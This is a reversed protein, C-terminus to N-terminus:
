IENPSYCRVCESHPDAHGRKAYVAVVLMPLPPRAYWLPAFGLFVDGAVKVNALTNFYMVNPGQFWLM